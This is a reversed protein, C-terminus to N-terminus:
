LKKIVSLYQKFGMGKIKIQWENLLQTCIQINNYQVTFYSEVM